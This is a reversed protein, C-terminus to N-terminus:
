GMGCSEAARCKEPSHFIEIEILDNIGAGNMVKGLAGARLSKTGM